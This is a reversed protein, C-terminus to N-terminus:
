ASRLGAMWLLCAASRKSKYFAEKRRSGSFISAAGHGIIRVTHYVCSILSYAMTAATGHHKAWYQIDARQMEIYFRVPAAHSSAGGYHVAAADPNFVVRWGRDHFRRCWDVDEGYMFFREDLLGVEDLAKRHTMWFWGNLIDVDRVEDHGFDRALFGGSLPSDHFLSDVALARCLSNWITPFRMTSRRTEGNAGLMKPGLLGITPNQSLYDVMFSLCGPSVIVDSNVLCVYRGTAIRIGINNAKGFGLNQNNQILRVEPFEGAIMEPTGDSSANDVVIIETEVPGASRYLSNLCDEVYKKANWSVIIVSLLPVQSVSYEGEM